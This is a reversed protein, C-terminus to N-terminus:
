RSYVMADRNSKFRTKKSGLRTRESKYQRSKREGQKIRVLSSPRTSFNIRKPMQTMSHNLQRQLVDCDLKGSM